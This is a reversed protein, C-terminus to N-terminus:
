QDNYNLDDECWQLCCYLIIKFFDIKNNGLAANGGGGRWGCSDDYDYDTLHKGNKSIMNKGDKRWLFICINLAMKYSNTM